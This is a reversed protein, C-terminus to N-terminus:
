VNSEFVKIFNDVLESSFDDVGLVDFACSAAGLLAGCKNFRSKYLGIRSKDFYRLNEYFVDQLTDWWISQECCLKGAIVVCELNLFNAINAATLGIWFGSSKLIENAWTEKNKCAELLGNVNDVGHKKAMFELYRGASVSQLCGKLGCSCEIGNPQVVFHGIEGAWGEKGKYPKGDLIIGAGIGTGVAIVLVNRYGLASGYRVESLAALNADDNVIVPAKFVMDFHSKFCLGEWNPKNPWRTVNGSADLNAALSVGIAGIKNLVEHEVSIEEGINTIYRLEEIPKLNIPWEFIESKVINGCGVLTTRIYTGGIDYALIYEYRNGM